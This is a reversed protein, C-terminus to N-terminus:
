AAERLRSGGGAREARLGAGCRGRLGAPEACFRKNGEKVDRNVWAVRVLITHRYHGFGVGEAEAGYTAAEHLGEPARPGRLADGTAISQYLGGHQERIHMISWVDFCEAHRQM